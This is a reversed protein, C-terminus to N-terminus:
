NNDKEGKLEIGEFQANIYEKLADSIAKKKSSLIETYSDKVKLEAIELERNRWKPFIRKYWPMTSLAELRACAIETNMQHTAIDLAVYATMTKVNCNVITVFNEIFTERDELYKNAAQIDINQKALTNSINKQFEEYHKQFETFTEVFTTASDVLEAPTYNYFTAM